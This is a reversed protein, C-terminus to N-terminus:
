IGDASVEAAVEEVATVTTRDMAVSWCATLTMSEMELDKEGASIGEVM